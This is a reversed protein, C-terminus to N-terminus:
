VVLLILIQYIYKQFNSMSIGIDQNMFISLLNRSRSIHKLKKGHANSFVSCCTCKYKKDEGDSISAISAPKVLVIESARKAIQSFKTNNSFQTKNRSQEEQLGPTKTKLGSQALPEEQSVLGAWLTPPPIPLHQKPEERQYKVWSDFDNGHGKKPPGITNSSKQGNLLHGLDFDLLTRKNFRTTSNQTSSKKNQKKGTSIHKNTQIWNDANLIEQMTLFEQRKKAVQIEYEQARKMKAITKEKSLEELQEDINNENEHQIDGQEVDISKQEEIQRIYEQKAIKQKELLADNEEKQKRQNDEHFKNERQETENKIQTNKLDRKYTEANKLKLKTADIKAQYNDDGGV